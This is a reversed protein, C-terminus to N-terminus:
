NGVRNMKKSGLSMMNKCVVKIYIIRKKPIERERHLMVMISTWGNRHREKM